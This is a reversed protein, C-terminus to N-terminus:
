DKKGYVVGGFVRYNFKGSTKIAKGGKGGKAKRPGGGSSVRSNTLQDGGDAGWGGGGSANGWNGGKSSSVSQGKNKNSGGRGGGKDGGRGGTSSGSKSLKRGGGGGGGHPDNGDRKIGGSGGGGAAGGEGQFELNLRGLVPGNVRRWNEGDEGKQGPNGGKGGRERSGKNNRGQSGDGGKGGGAGGGGGGYNGTGGGAGGGGGGAIAGKSNDIVVGKPSNQTIEIAHGADWGTFWGGGPPRLGSVWSGGDGGRGMIYGKNILTLGNPWHKIKLAPKQTKDSYIYVGNKITITAPSVGDWGKDLAWNNLNLHKRNKTITGRWMTTNTPKETEIVDNDDTDDPPEPIVSDLPVRRWVYVGYNPLINNHCKSAGATTTLRDVGDGPIQENTTLNRYNGDRVNADIEKLRDVGELAIAAEEEGLVDVIVNRALLLDQATFTGPHVRNKDRPDYNSKELVGGPTNGVGTFPVKDPRPSNNIFITTTSNIQLLGGWGPGGVVSGGWGELSYNAIEPSFDSDKYRYGEEHRQKILATRYENENEYLTNNQFAEIKDQGLFYKYTTSEEDVLGQPNVTEGFYPVFQKATDFEGITVFKTNVDHTHAPLEDATLQVCYESAIDGAQVGGFGPSFSRKLPPVNSDLGAGVGVLFKGGAEPAWKTGAIRNGPNNNTVTLMISNIPFFADLWETPTDFGEPEIYRNIIVRDGDSSLTIGTTRGSGTFVTNDPQSTLDAGSVHLLSTYYDAIRQGNLSEGVNEPTVYNPM